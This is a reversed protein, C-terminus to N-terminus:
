KLRRILDQIISLPILFVSLPFITNRNSKFFSYFKLLYFGPFKLLIPILMLLPLLFTLSPTHKPFM